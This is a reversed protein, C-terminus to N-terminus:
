YLRGTGSLSLVLSLQYILSKGYGITRVISCDWKNVAIAELAEKQKPEHKMNKQEKPVLLM